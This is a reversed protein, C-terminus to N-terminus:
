KIELSITILRLTENGSGTNVNVLLDFVHLGSDLGSIDAEVTYRRANAGALDHVAQEPYIPSVDMIADGGNFAFGFKDIAGTFGIWGSFAITKTGKKVTVKSQAAMLKTDVQMKHIEVGDVTFIDFSTAIFGTDESNYLPLDLGKPATPREVVTATFSLINVPTGGQYDILAVFTVTHDGKSLGSVNASINFRMAQKGGANLVASGPAVPYSDFVVDGGDISYGFMMIPYRFGIWGYINLSFSGEYIEVKNGANQLKAEIGGTSFLASGDARLTDVSKGAKRISKHSDPILSDATYGDLSKETVPTIFAAAPIGASNCLTITEGYYDESEYNYAVAKIEVDFTVTVQNPATIEARVPSVKTYLYDRNEFGIIGKVTQDGDATKLGAGVNAFTLTMSKKDASIAYSELWPGGAEDLAKTKLIVAEAIDASRKAQEYKCNPHLNNYFTRDNWLDSSQSIYCNKLASPLMGMYSRIVGLEMFHWDGSHSAPKEYISPLETVIVPFDKNILNHTSRLRTILAAFTDNFAMANQLSNNSEGQYWLLGAVAYRSVPALYCNYLYRGLHETTITSYYIGTAADKYDGGFEDAIDNPLFSVLPAGGRAVEMLGIPVTPDKETMHRAFYYGLASFGLTSQETTKKWFLTNQLDSYVYDTGSKSYSGGSGNLHNLRIVSNPDIANKGGGQTAPDTYALHNNVTYAANSQGLVLYVDGVLVDKFLVTKTDTYIKMEAGNVDAELRAGFTLCWEGNEIIAEAFMGKFEGSVKKGNESEPAFGWVRIHEGRQVVMDDSFIKAVSFDAAYEAELTEGVVKDTIVKTEEETQKETEVAQSDAETAKSVAETSANETSDSETSATESEDGRTASETFTETEDTEPANTEVGGGCSAFATVLMVAMLFFSIIRTLKM